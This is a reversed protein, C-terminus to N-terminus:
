RNDVRLYINRTQLDQTCSVRTHVTQTFGAKYARVYLSPCGGGGLVCGKVCYTLEHEIRYQGAHDTAAPARYLGAGSLTVEAGVVPTNEPSSTVTGQIRLVVTVTESEDWGLPNCSLLTVALLSGILKIGM